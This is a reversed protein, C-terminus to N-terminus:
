VAFQDLSARLFWADAETLVRIYACKELHVIFVQVNPDCPIGENVTCPAAFGLPLSTCIDRVVCGFGYEHSGELARAKEPKENAQEQHPGRETFSVSPRKLMM